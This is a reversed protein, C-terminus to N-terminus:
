GSTVVKIEAKSCKISEMVYYEEKPYEMAQIEAVKIADLETAFGFNVGTNVGQIDSSNNENLVSSPIKAASEGVVIWFKKM